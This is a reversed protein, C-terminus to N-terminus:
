SAVRVRAPARPDRGPARAHSRDAEGQLRHLRDGRDPVGRGGMGPDRPHLLGQAPRLGPVQRPRRPRDAAHPRPRHADAQDEQSPHGRRGEHVRCQRVVEVDQARRHRPHAEGRHAADEARPLDGRLHQQLTPRDGPDARRPPGPGGGGSGRGGQLHHHGRDAAGPLGPLRLDLPGERHAAAAAGQLDAGAGAVAGAGGDVAPPAAGRAGAGPEPHLADVARPRSRGGALGDGGRAREGRHGLPRRLGDDALALRRHLLLLRLLGPPSGLERPGGHPQRPPARGTPRMGSLIRPKPM